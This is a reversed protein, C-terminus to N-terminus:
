YDTQFFVGARTSGDSGLSGRLKMTRTIDLDINVRTSGPELGQEVGLTVRETIRRGAAVRTEGTETQFVEFRDLGVAQGLGDMLGGGTGGGSLTAVAAALQAIQFPSLQTLSSGFILRALAEEQPLVPSSTITIEPATARGAVRLELTVGDRRAVATFSVRPDLNGVFDVQGREIEVRQGLLDLHGRRVRFGGLAILNRTTGSLTLRGGLQVDLGRGRVLFTDRVVVDVALEMDGGRGAQRAVLAAAQRQVGMPANIHRVDLAALAVPPPENLTLKPGILDVRGALRPAGALPGTLTLRADFTTVLLTGDSYHGRELEINLNAQHPAAVGVTGSIAVRGDRGTAGQLQEIRAIGDGLVIRGSARQVIFRGEVDGFTANATTVTGAVAVTELPGTLRLDVEIMAELRLGAEALRDSALASSVSGRVTVGVQHPARLSVTGAITLDTAQPGRATSTFTLHQEALDGQVELALPPLGQEALMAVSVDRGSLQFRARPAEASGSLTATGSVVGAPALDPMLKAVVALPLNALEINADLGPALTGAVIVRGGDAAFEAREINVVEGAIRVSTPAVLAVDIGDLRGSLQEVAVVFVGDAVETTTRATFRLRPGSAELAVAFSRPGVTETALEVEALELAGARAGILRMDGRPRPTGFVDEVTIDAAVGAAAVTGYTIDRGEAQIRATSREGAEIVEIEAELAGGLEALLLPGLHSLDPASVILRGHPAAEAPLTLAGEIRATGITAALIVNPDADAVPAGLSATIDVPQRDLDGSLRMDGHPGEPDLVGSAEFVVDRFPKGILSVESGQGTIEARPAARPGTLSAEVEVAGRARPDLSALESLVASATLEIDDGSLRGSLRSDLVQSTLVVDHLQVIDPFVGSVEGALRTPGDLLRDLALNGTQPSRMQADMTLEYDGDEPTFHGAASLAGTTTEIYANDLVVRGDGPLEFSLDTLFAGELLPPLDSDGPELLGSAILRAAARRDTALPLGAGSIELTLDRGSVGAAVLSEATANMNWEPAEFEGQLGAEFTLRLIEAAGIQVPAAYGLQGSLSLLLDAAEFDLVGDATVDMVESRMIASEISLRGTDELMVAAALEAEGALLQAFDAPALRAFDGALQAEVMLGVDSGTLRASGTVVPVANLALNLDGSWDALPGRGVVRLDVMPDNELALLGQVLGGHGETLTLDLTLENTEHEFLINAVLSGDVDDIRTASVDLSIAPPAQSISGSGSVRLRAPASTVPRSLDLDEITLTSIEAAILNAAEAPAEAPPAAEPRRLVRVREATLANIRLTSTFISLPRWDLHFNELVMWEGVADRVAVRQATVNGTLGISVGQVDVPRGEASLLRQILSEVYSREDDQSSQTHVHATGALVAVLLLSLIVVLRRM